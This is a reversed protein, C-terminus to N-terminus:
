PANAAFRAVTNFEDRPSLSEVHGDFFLANMKKMRGHRFALFGVTGGTVSFSPQTTDMQLSAGPTQYPSRAYVIEDGREGEVVLFQRPKFLSLKAGLHYGFGDPSTIFDVPNHGYGATGYGPHPYSRSTALSIRYGYLGEPPYPPDPWGTASSAGGTADLNMNYCRTYVNQGPAFTPCSLNRGQPPGGPMIEIQGDNDQRWISLSHKNLVEVNLIDAWSINGNGTLNLRGRGPGRQDHEAAFLYTTQGISKEHAACKAARAQERAAALSPLLLAMLLAIIAIVVLLEVLTFGRFGRVRNM